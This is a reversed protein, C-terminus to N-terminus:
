VTRKRETEKYANGVESAKPLTFRVSRGVYVVNLKGERGLRYITGISVKCMEALEDAKYLKM